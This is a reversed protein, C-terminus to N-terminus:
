AVLGADRLFSSPQQWKTDGWPMRRLQPYSFYLLRKSRTVAVFANRQEEAIERAKGRARYDPFVGDAMCVVFVVDFELGKSSHVTMLAVGEQNTQRTSGLAMNSIFGALSRSLSSDSRLYQDWEAGLVALDEYIARREEDVQTDAFIKLVNISQMLDLRQNQEHVSLIADAIAECRKDAASAASIKLFEVVEEPTSPSSQGPNACAWKKVLASRHLADRPNAFVRLALLFEDVTDSENEHSASLRKFYPINRSKLEQEIRLLTFRTRGLIACSSPGIAGEVDPDGNAFLYEITNAVEIAEDDEDHGTLLKVSGLVPLQAEVMYRPDLAQAVRVVAQSSRYNETLELEAAGFDQKFRLLYEPSSSNFGYISQKPDGVMMVNNFNDGCLARIVAYQSENLDQAEDICVYQYMRRYLDAVKPFDTFLQYTLLLLDDFDYAGCARLGANYSDLVRDLLPDDLEAFTIPQAKVSSIGKLWQEIRQNRSKGDLPELEAALLPDQEAAQILIQKRDQHQEFIQPLANVGVLKGRDTLVDLCFGHMTGIFARQRVEGLDNLREKMENAAKNTFTLALVRFHGPVESLLRRVRETLVRTKGSGPGAVVLLAGQDHAVVRHQADSLRTQSM